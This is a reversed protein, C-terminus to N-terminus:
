FLGSSKIFNYTKSIYPVSQYIKKIPPFKINYYFISDQILDELLNISFLARKTENLPSERLSSVFCGEKHKYFSLIKELLFGVKNKVEDLENSKLDTKMYLFDLSYIIKSIDDLKINENVFTLLYILWMNINKPIKNINDLIFCVKFFSELDKPIIKIIKEEDIVAQLSSSLQEKYDDLLSHQFNLIYNKIDIIKCINELDKDDKLIKEFKEKPVRYAPSRWAAVEGIKSNEMIWQPSFISFKKSPKNVYVFLKNEIPKRKNKIKKSVKSIKFDYFDLNEKEAYQFEIEINIDNVEAIFDAERSIGGRRLFWLFRDGGSKYVRVKGQYIQKFKRKLWGLVELEAIAKKKMDKRYELYTRSKIDSSQAYITKADLKNM